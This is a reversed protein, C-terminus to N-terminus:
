KIKKHKNTAPLVATIHQTYTYRVSIWIYNSDSIIMPLDSDFAIMTLHGDEYGIKPTAPSSSVRPANNSPGASNTSPCPTFVDSIKTPCDGLRQEKVVLERVM